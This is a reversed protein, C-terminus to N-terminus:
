VSAAQVLALGRRPCDRDAEPQERGANDFFAPHPMQWMQLSARAGDSIIMATPVADDTRVGDAAVVARSAVVVKTALAVLLTLLLGFSASLRAAIALITM